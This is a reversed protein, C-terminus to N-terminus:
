AHPVAYLQPAIHSVHTFVRLAAQPECDHAPPIFVLGGRSTRMPLCLQPEIGSYMAHLPVRTKSDAGIGLSTRETMCRVM